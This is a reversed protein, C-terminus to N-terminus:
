LSGFFHQNCGWHVDKQLMKFGHSPIHHFLEGFIERLESELSVMGLFQRTVTSESRTPRLRTSFCLM